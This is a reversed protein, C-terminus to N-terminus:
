QRFRVRVEGERDLSFCMEHMGDSQGSTAYGSIPSLYDALWSSFDWVHHLPKVSRMAYGSSVMASFIFKSLESPTTIQTRKLNNILPCFTQDLLNFTHGNPMFFITPQVFIGHPSSTRIPAPTAIPPHATSTAL